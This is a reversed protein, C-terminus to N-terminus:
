ILVVVREGDMVIVVLRWKGIVTFSMREVKADRRTIVRKKM